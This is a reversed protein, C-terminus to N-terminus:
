TRQRLNGTQAALAAIMAPTYRGGEALQMLRSQPGLADLETAIQREFGIRTQMAWRPGNPGTAQAIADILHNIRAHVLYMPDPPNGQKILEQFKAGNSNILREFESQLLEM